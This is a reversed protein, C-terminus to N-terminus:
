VGAGAASSNNRLQGCAADIDSGMERRITVNIHYKELLFKFRSINAANSRRGFRGEVHNLPILNVHYLRRGVLRSIEQACEPSDNEGDILTYELSVRRGTKEIYYDAAKIIDAISYRNAVPMIKKRLEDFPAHLSVALTCNLGEDALRYINEVIGCTSLTINRESINLGNKDSLMRIFRVVNDYNDLPEGIGMIIVNSVREGSARQINYVQDLIESPKLSRRLGGVTSACFRCGMRCGAQSSVCVSRGHRYKMWVSEVRNGDALEMLYKTTGDIKSVQRYIIDATRVTCNEELRKRLDKSLDTMEDFSSALKVHMWKYVQKARFPKEGISEFYDTLEHLTMSKIDTLTKDM